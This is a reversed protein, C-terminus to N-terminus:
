AADMTEVVAASAEGLGGHIKQVIGAAAYEEATHVVVPVVDRVGQVVHQFGLEEMDAHTITDIDKM